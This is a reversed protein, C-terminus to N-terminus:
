DEKSMKLTWCKGTTQTPPCKDKDIMNTKRSDYQSPRIM